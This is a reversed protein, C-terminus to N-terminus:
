DNQAGTALLEKEQKMIKLKWILNFAMLGVMVFCLVSLVIGMDLFFTSESYKFQFLETTEKYAAFDIETLFRTKLKISNILIYVGYFLFFGGQVGISAYNDIYYLRRKNTAFIYPLLCTLILVISLIVAARNYPQAESFLNIGDFYSVASCLYLGYMDTTIGLSFVFCVAAFILLVLTLIKQFKMQSKFM